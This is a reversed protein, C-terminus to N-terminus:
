AVFGDFDLFGHNFEYIFMRQEAHSDSHIFNLVFGPKRTQGNGASAGIREATPLYQGTNATPHVAILEMTANTIKIFSTVRALWFGIGEHM